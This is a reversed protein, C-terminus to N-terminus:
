SERMKMGLRDQYIFAIKSSSVMAGVLTTRVQVASRLAFYAASGLFCSVERAYHHHCGCM